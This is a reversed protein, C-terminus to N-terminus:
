EGCIAPLCRGPYSALTRIQDAPIGLGLLSTMLHVRSGGAAFSEVAAEYKDLDGLTRLAIFEPYKSRITDLMTICAGTQNGPDHFWM